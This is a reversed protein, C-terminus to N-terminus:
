DGRSRWTCRTSARWSRKENGWAKRSLRPLEGSRALRSGALRARAKSGNASLVPDRSASPSRRERGADAEEDATALRADLETTPLGMVAATGNSYAFQVLGSLGYAMGSSCRRPTRRFASPLPCRFRVRLGTVVDRAGCGCFVRMDGLKELIVCRQNGILRDRGLCQKFRRARFRHGIATLGRGRFSSAVGPRSPTHAKQSLSIFSPSAPPRNM